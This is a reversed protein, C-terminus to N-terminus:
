IAGTTSSNGEPAILISVRNSVIPSHNFPDAISRAVTPPM